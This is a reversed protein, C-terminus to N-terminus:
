ANRRQWSIGRSIGRTKSVPMGTTNSSGLLFQVLKKRARVNPLIRSRSEALMSIAVSM